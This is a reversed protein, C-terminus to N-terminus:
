VGYQRLDIFKTFANKDHLDATWCSYAAPRGAAMPIIPQNPM